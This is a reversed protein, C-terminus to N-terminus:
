LEKRYMIVDHGTGRNYFACLVSWGKSVLLDKELQNSSQVTAVAMSYGAEKAAEMRIRLFERGIGKGRWKPDVEVHHFIAVGKCGPMPLVGFKGIYEFGVYTYNSWVQYDGSYPKRDLKFERVNPVARRLVESSNIRELLALRMTTLYEETVDSGVHHM